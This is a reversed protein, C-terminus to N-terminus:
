EEVRQVHGNGGNRGDAVAFHPREVGLAPDERDKEHKEADARRDIKQRREDRQHNLTVEACCKSYRAHLGADVLEVAVGHEAAEAADALLDGTLEHLAAYREDHDLVVRLRERASCFGSIEDDFAVRRTVVDQEPCPSGSTRRAPASRTIEGYASLPRRMASEDM